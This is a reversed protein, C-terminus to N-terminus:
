RHFGAMKKMAKFGKNAAVSAQAATTELRVKTKDNANVLKGIKGGIKTGTAAAKAEADLDDNQAPMPPASPEVVTAFVPEQANNVPIATTPKTSYYNVEPDEDVYYPKPNTPKSTNNQKTHIPPVEYVIDDGGVPGEMFCSLCLSICLALFGLGLFSFGLVISTGVFGMTADACDFDDDLDLQNSFNWSIGVCLWVFFGILILIYVAIAPDYCLIHKARRFGRLEGKPERYKVAVYMAAWINIACLIMNVLLWLSTRCGGYTEGVAAASLAIPPINCVLTAADYLCFPNSCLSGTSKCCIECPVTCIKTCGNCLAGLGKCLIAAM